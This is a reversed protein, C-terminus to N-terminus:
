PATLLTPGAPLRVVEPQTATRIQLRASRVIRWKRSRTATPGRRCLTSAASRPTSGGRSHGCDGSSHLIITFWEAAEWHLAHTSWERADMATVRDYTERQLLSMFLSGGCAIMVTWGISGDIRALDQIIELVNPLPLELGGCSHAACMRFVGMTKLAQVLDDPSKRALEIEEARDIIMPGLRGLGPAYTTPKNL